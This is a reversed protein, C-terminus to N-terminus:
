YSYLIYKISQYLKLNRCLIISKLKNLPLDTYNVVTLNCNNQILSTNKIITTYLVSSTILILM